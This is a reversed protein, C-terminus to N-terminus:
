GRIVLNIQQKLVKFLAESNIPKTLYDNFALGTFRAREHALAYASQAIIPLDPNFKKIQKAAAYGDMVPMKIDMLVLKINPYQKCFQIAEEGNKAHIIEIGPVNLLEELFLFNFQEDEAVLILVKEDKGDSQNGRKFDDFVPKYPITFTFESGKGVESHVKINGGLLEVFSKSIALGLGTGGYLKNIDDTAQRFREFIKDHMEGPIGIGTDRVYFLLFQENNDTILNYGFEISGHHTFKLANALLNSIIQTLKTKDTYIESQM